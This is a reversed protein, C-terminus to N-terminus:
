IGMLSSTTSSNTSVTALTRIKRCLIETLEKATPIVDNRSPQFLKRLLVHPCRRYVAVHRRGHDRFGAFHFVKAHDKAGSRM